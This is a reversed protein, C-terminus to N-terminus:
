TRVLHFVGLDTFDFLRYNMCVVTLYTLTTM